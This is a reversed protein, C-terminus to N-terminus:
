GFVGKAFKMLALMALVLVAAVIALLRTFRGNRWLQWGGLTFVPGLVVVAAMVAVAATLENDSGDFRLDPQNLLAILAAGVGLTLLPGLIMLVMGRIRTMRTPGANSTNSEVLQALTPM